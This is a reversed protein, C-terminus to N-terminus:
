LGLTTDSLSNDDFDKTDDVTSLNDDIAKNTDDIDTTKATPGSQATVPTKSSDKVAPSEKQDSYVMVTTVALGIAVVLAVVIPVVPGRHSPAKAAPKAVLPASETLEAQAPQTEEAFVPEPAPAAEPATEETAIEAVPESEVATPQSTVSSAVDTTPMEVVEEVVTDGVMTQAPKPPQIDMVQVPKAVDTKTDM